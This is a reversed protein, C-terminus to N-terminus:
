RWQRARSLSAQDGNGLPKRARSGSHCRTGDPRAAIQAAVVLRPLHTLVYPCAGLATSNSEARSGCHPSEKKKEM